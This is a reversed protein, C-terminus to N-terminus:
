SDNKTGPDNSIGTPYTDESSKNLNLLQIEWPQSTALKKMMSTPRAMTHM